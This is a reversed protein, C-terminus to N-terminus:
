RGFTLLLLTAYAVPVLTLASLALGMAGWIVTSAAIYGIIGLAILGTVREATSFTNKGVAPQVTADPNTPDSLTADSM